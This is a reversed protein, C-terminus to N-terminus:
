QEVELSKRELIDILKIVKLLMKSQVDHQDWLIKFKDEIELKYYDPKKIYSSFQEAFMKEKGVVEMEEEDTINEFALSLLKHLIDMFCGQMLGANVNILKNLQNEIDIYEFNTILSKGEISNPPISYKFSGNDTNVTKIGNQGTMLWEPNVDYTKIIKSVLNTSVGIKCREIDSLTAQKIGLSEAFDKQTLGREKRIYKVRDNLETDRNVINEKM